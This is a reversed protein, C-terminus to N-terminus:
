VGFGVFINLVAGKDQAQTVSLELRAHTKSDLSEVTHPNLLTRPSLSISSGVGFM